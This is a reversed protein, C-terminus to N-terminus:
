LLESSVVSRDCVICFFEGIFVLLVVTMTTDLIWNNEVQLLVFLDPCFLSLFICVSRLPQLRNLIATLFASMKKLQENNAMQHRVRHRFQLKVLDWTDLDLQRDHKGEADGVDDNKFRFGGKRQKMREQERVRGSKALAQSADGLGLGFGGWASKLGLTTSNAGTSVKASFKTGLTISDEADMRDAKNDKGSAWSGNGTRASGRDETISPLAPNGASNPKESPLACAEL